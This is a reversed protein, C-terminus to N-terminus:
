AAVRVDPRHAVPDRIIALPDDFGQKRIGSGRVLGLAIM